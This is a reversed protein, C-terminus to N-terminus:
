GEVPTALCFVFKDESLKRVDFPFLHQGLKDLKIKKRRKLRSMEEGESKIERREEGERERGREGAEKLPKM